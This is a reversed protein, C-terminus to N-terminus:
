YKEFLKGDSDAYDNIVQVGREWFVVCLVILKHVTYQMDAKEAIRAAAPTNCELGSM